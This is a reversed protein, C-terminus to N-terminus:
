YLDDASDNAKELQALERQKRKEEREAIREQETLVTLFEYILYYAVFFCPLLLWISWHDSWINFALIIVITNTIFHRM